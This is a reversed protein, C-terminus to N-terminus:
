KTRIGKRLFLWAMFNTPSVCICNKIHKSCYERLCSAKSFTNFDGGKIVELVAKLYVRIAFALCIDKQYM